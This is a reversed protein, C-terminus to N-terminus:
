PASTSYSPVGSISIDNSGIWDKIITLNDNAHDGMRWWAILSSSASHTRLENSEGANYIEQVQIASLSEKWISVEDINGKFTRQSGMYSGIHLPQAGFGIFTDHASAVLVGEVYFKFTTGDYTATLLRWNDDYYAINYNLETYQNNANRYGAFIRNNAVGFNIATEGNVARHLNFIRADGSTQHHLTKFWTSISFVSAGNMLQNSSPGVLYQSGSLAISKQNDYAPYTTTSFTLRENNIDMKGTTDLMSVRLTYETNPTLNTLLFNDLPAEVSAQYTSDGNSAVIFISYSAAGAVHDWHLTAQNPKINSISKIGAFPITSYGPGQEDPCVSNQIRTTVREKSSTVQDKCATLLLLLTIILSLKIKM